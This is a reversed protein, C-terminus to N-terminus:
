ISKTLEKGLRNRAILLDSAASWFDSMTPRTTVRNSVMIMATIKEEYNDALALQEQSLKGKVAKLRSFQTNLNQILRQKTQLTVHGKENMETAFSAAFAHFQVMSDELAAVQQAHRDKQRADDLSLVSSYYSLTFSAIMTVISGLILIWRPTDTEFLFASLPNKTKSM